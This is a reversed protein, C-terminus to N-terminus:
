PIRKRPMGAPYSNEFRISEIMATEVALGRQAGVRLRRERVSRPTVILTNEVGVQGCQGRATRRACCMAIAESLTVASHM